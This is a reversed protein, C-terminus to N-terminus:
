DSARKGARRWLEAGAARVGKAAWRVGNNGERGDQGDQGDHGDHADRGNLGSRLASAAQREDLRRAIRSAALPLVLAAATKLAPRLARRGLGEPREDAQERLRREAEAAQAAEDEEEHRVQRIYDDATVAPHPRDKAKFLYMLYSFAPLVIMMGVIAVALVAHEVGEPAAGRAITVDPVVLYPLQAIAWAGLILMVGGASLMRAFFYQGILLAGATLAGVVIALLAIPLARSTLGNFLHQAFYSSLWAAVMGLVAAIGGSVLARKRFRRALAMEGQNKAEVTMYTATLCACLAVAFCGCALAFPTTWSTIVNAQVSDDPLVRITGSAAAAGVCGCLFPAATSAISFARGWPVKVSVDSQFHSYFVFAAGRMVIGLLGITLPIFLATMITSFVLPFATWTGTVLFILWIENGEWIPGIARILAGREQEANAGRALLDWVGAGFDAGGFIAFALISLWLIVAMADAAPHTTSLM